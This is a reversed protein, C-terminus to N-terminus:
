VAKATIAVELRLRLGQVETCPRQTQNVLAAMKPSTGLHACHLEGVLGEQALGNMGGEANDGIGSEYFLTINKPTGTNRYRAGLAQILDEPISTCIIGQVSLTDGDKVLDAAESATIVKAM